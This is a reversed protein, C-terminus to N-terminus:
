KEPFVADLARWDNQASPSEANWNPFTNM